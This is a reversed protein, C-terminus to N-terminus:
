ELTFEKKLGGARIVFKGLEIVRRCEANIFSFAEAPLDFNVTQNEGPNLYIKKFEKLRKNAPTVSAVTDSVYVQAIYGGKMKGKNKVDFSVKLGDFGKKSASNKSLKLGSCEFDTYSLGAGFPWQFEVKCSSWNASKKYDYWEFGGAYKPYSFPLRGSPNVDGSVVDAIADAGKVGPLYAMVVADSVKEIERVVRPRGQTLITIIPKGTESLRAALKRQSLSINYDRINGSHETYTNEGACLLIVDCNEAKEAAKDANLLKDFDAGKEFSVNGRGFEAKVAELITNQSDPYLHEERGQWTRSWGGNLVSKLNSCPGTVLIKEEKKLPLIDSENKLLTICEKACRENLKKAEKSAIKESLKDDEFPDNFLGAQFKVRIINKVAEDVRQVPVEGAEVLSVLHKKFDIKFPTMSMDIGANVGIKVAERQNEAVMERTYLNDIDAWDSVVFGSFGIDKRLLKKLYFPSAHVPRGNIESSNIMATVAGAQVAARFPPVFIERLQIEPIWAPTRDRGSRPYSYGLFHKMCALVKDEALPLKDGQLGTIYAEAFESAIFPDEGFTEYHRPWFPHRAVGLVPAFNWRIGAARTELATVEAMQQVLQRSGAAAMAINHPFLTSGAVYGAGHISDLGYIVPIQLRTKKTYKQVLSTIELWKEPSLARGGCNLVSGIKEQVIYKELKNEDLKLKDGSKGNTFAKLTLQTMQGAKEDLTMKSLLGDVKKEVKEEANVLSVTFILLLSFLKLVNRNAGM